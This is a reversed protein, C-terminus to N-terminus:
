IANYIGMLRNVRPLGGQAGHTLAELSNQVENPKAGFRIGQLSRDVGRFSSAPHNSGCGVDDRAATEAEKLMAESKSNNTGPLIREVVM